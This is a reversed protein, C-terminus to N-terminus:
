NLTNDNKLKDEEKDLEKEVNPINIFYIICTIDDITQITTSNRNGDKQKEAIIKQKYMNIVEWRSRAENVLAEPLKEKSMMDLKEFIFGVVETSNMVDWVGDSAIVIFKDDSDLLKYTFTPESSVGCDQSLWVLDMKLKVSFEILDMKRVLSRGEMKKLDKGRRSM